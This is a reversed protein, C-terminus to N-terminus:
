CTQRLEVVAQKLVAVEKEEKIYPLNVLVNETAGKIAAEALYIACQADSHLNKNGQELAQRALGLILASKKATTLPIRAAQIMAAQSFKSDVVKQYAAADEYVLGLLEGKLCNAKILVERFLSEAEAYKKKGITLVAVKAVLGAALCGSLAAASGGGPAPRDSALEETFRELSMETLKM